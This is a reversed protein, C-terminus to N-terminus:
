SYRESSSGSFKRSVSVACGGAPPGGGGGGGGGLGAPGGGGGGGGAGGLMGSRIPVTPGSKRIATKKASPLFTVRSAGPVYVICTCSREDTCLKWRLPGPKLSAVGTASMTCGIQVIVKRLPM